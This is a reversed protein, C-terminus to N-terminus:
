PALRARGLRNTEYWGVVEPMWNQFHPWMLDCMAQIEMQADKKSRLDLFHMLSRANFSVVFHQRFDFFLSGRAHEESFGALIKMRYDIANAAASRLDNLRQRQTYEYQKGQRDRYTGIPRFYFVEDVWDCWEPTEGRQCAALNLALDMAPTHQIADIREALKVIRQGSYRMSQVSWSSHRHTRGQQMVSHPFYGVSFTIQPCELPSYHGRDGKLLHKVALEGCKTESFTHSSEWHGDLMWSDLEGGVWNEAYCQHMAAYVVTQPKPTTAIVRVNFLSDIQNEM